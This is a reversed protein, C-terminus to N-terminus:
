SSGERAHDTKGKRSRHKTDVHQLCVARGPIRRQLWGPRDASSALQRVVTSLQNRARDVRNHGWAREVMGAYIRGRNHAAGADALISM